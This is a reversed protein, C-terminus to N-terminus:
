KEARARPDDGPDIYEIEWPGVSSLQVVTEGDTMAFHPHGPPMSTYSGPELPTTEDLDFEEGHGLMFTGSIVTLREVGPHTHPNIRYGDPFRLRITFVAHEDLEGELMALESGEELSAPGDQWEMEDPTYVLAHDPGEDVFETGKTSEDASDAPNDSVPDPNSTSCSFLLVASALLPVLSRPM